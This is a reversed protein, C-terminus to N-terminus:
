SGIPWYVETRWTSQDPNAGPDTLYLEWPPGAFAIGQDAAWKEIARYTERLTDYSGAHLGVAVAGAPLTGAEVDGERESLKVAKVPMGAEITLHDKAMETYRVFPRGVVELRRAKAFGASKALGAGIKNALENMTTTYRVFVAPQENVHRREISLTPM